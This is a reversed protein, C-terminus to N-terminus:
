VHPLLTGYLFYYFGCSVSKLSVDFRVAFSADLSFGCNSYFNSEMALIKGDSNFGVKYRTLMPHRGGTSIIDEDRDLMFRVPCNAIKAAVAAVATMICSRSEKGGFAGGIRKTRVTIRNLPVKVAQAVMKQMHTIWQCSSWIEMEGHEGKPLVLSAQTEMYFHEQGGVHMEGEITYDSKEFGQAVNGNKISRTPHLFSEKAIADKITLITELEEYVILVLSAGKQALEKTDALVMGIVQGVCHVEREAFLEEDNGIRGVHVGHCDEATIVYHIGEEALAPSKDVSRFQTLSFNEEISASHSRGALKPMDDVYTAEGTSHQLASQHAVTRGVDDFQPQGSPVEQYLQTSEFEEHGFPEVASRDRSSLETRGNSLKDSVSLFFKFFFSLVLSQRYVEMGGPTGPALTLEEQLSTCADDLLSEDWDRNRLKQMTREAMVTTPAMGGFVLHIEEVQSTLPQFRVRMGANVIAIDDERRQAQKFSSIHEDSNTFPIFISHLIEEKQLVTQRYGAYFKPSMPLTRTGKVSALRLKCGAAMFVPNLDSIPSGTVINGGVAAVNRIQSGAFWRLMEVIAKFTRTANEPLDNILKKLYTDLRALTVSSGVELGEDKLELKNLEPVADAM